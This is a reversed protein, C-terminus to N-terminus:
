RRLWQEPNLTETERRIEFHLFNDDDNASNAIRGLTQGARVSDGKRVAVNAVNAYVTIYNGHRVLLLFNNYAPILVVEMVKGEFVCNVAVGGPGAINVGNNKTRLNSVLQHAHEGFRDIIVGGAIPYPLRGKNEDFRSSLEAIAKLDADTTASGQSRRVEAEVLRQIEQQAKDILAQKENVQRRLKEQEATLQSVTNKYQTEDKGLSIVERSHTQRTRDMEARAEDLKSVESHISDSLHAIEIAKDQRARNYRRMFDARRAGANFDDVSFLFLIFNNLKYNKWAAYVMAAYDKRLAAMQTNLRDIERNKSRIDGEIMGVQRELSSVMKQRNTLRERIIKLQSESATRDKQTKNLLETGVRIEEEYRSIQRRLEEMESTDPPNQAHAAVAFTLCLAILFYKLTGNM